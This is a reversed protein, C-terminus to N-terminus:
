EHSKGIPYIQVFEGRLRAAFKETLDPRKLKLLTAPDVYAYIDVSAPNNPDRPILFNGTRFNRIDRM